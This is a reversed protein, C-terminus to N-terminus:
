EGGPWGECTKRYPEDPFYYVWEEQTFNRGVRECLQNLWSETNTDFLILSGSESLSVLSKDNQSFAIISANQETEAAKLPDGLPQLTATDWLVITGNSSASALLAGDQSFTLSFVVTKHVRLPDGLPQLSAVDWLIITADDSGSAMMTGDSSFALSNIWGGHSAQMEIPKKNIVDYLLPTGSESGIALMRGDPSFALSSIYRTNIQIPEGLSQGNTTDWLIISSDTGHIASVLTAGDPSFTIILEQETDGAILPDFLPQKRAVDWLIITGDLDASALNKGDPSFAVSIVEREHWELPDGHPQRSDVDWLFLSGDDYGIALTKGDSSFAANNVGWHDAREWGMNEGIFQEGTMDWLIITGDHSCSALTDGDPSFAIDSVEGLHTVLPNGIPQGSDVDWVIITRDRSSTAFTSGDPSFSVSLIGATHGFDIQHIPQWSSVDWLKIHNGEGVAVFTNGDPSFAIDHIYNGFGQLPEGIYKGNTVDWLVIRSERGEGSSYALIRGDPSFSLGGYLSFFGQLPESIPQMSKVDWLIVTGNSLGRNGTALLKGNPSFSIIDPGGPHRGKRDLPQGSAIDWLIIIENASFAMINGDPCFSIDGGGYGEMYFSSDAPRGSAVDWLIINGDNNGYVMIKGDPSFSIEGVGEHRMIRGLRPHQQSLRFLNSTTQYNEISNFSEIGLLMAIDFHIDSQQSVMTLERIRALRANEEAIEKQQEAIERQEEAVVVQTALSHATQEARQGNIFALIGLVITAILAAGVGMLLRRQRNSAERRSAQIYRSQTVTPELQKEESAALWTEAQQLDTGQLLYSKDEEARDWELARVQLRTHARIWDYDTQIAEILSEIAPQLEDETRSFIWNIAALAPHVKNPQVDDIVIPIIRKNNKRAHDIELTCVESLTSTESLIFIFTSAEEISTYVEALWETSPPIDQWDIWTEFESEKLAKHLLRAYAIDKRSYSIFIDTM